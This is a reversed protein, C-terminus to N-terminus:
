PILGFARMKEEVKERNIPKSLYDSCSGRFFAKVVQEETDLASVMFIIAESPGQLGNEQEIQRIRKLADQGDMEPMMIDLCILKYPNGDLVSLEYAEVAERGNVTLDIDGHKSLIKDLLLRNHAEDDSILIRM